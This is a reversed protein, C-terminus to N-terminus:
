NWPFCELIIYCNFGQEVLSPSLNFIPTVDSFYHIGNLDILNAILNGSLTNLILNWNMIQIMCIHFNHWQLNKCRDVHVQIFIASFHMLMIVLLKWLPFNHFNGCSIASFDIKIRILDSFLLIASVLTENNCAPKKFFDSKGTNWTIWKIFIYTFESRYVFLCLKLLLKRYYEILVSFKDSPFKKEIGQLFFDIIKRKKRGFSKASKKKTWKM